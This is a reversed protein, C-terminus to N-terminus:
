ERFEPLRKLIDEPSLHWDARVDGPDPSALNNPDHLTRTYSGYLNALQMEIKSHNDPDDSHLWLTLEEQMVDYSLEVLNGSHGHFPPRGIYVIRPGVEAVREGLSFEKEKLVGLHKELYVLALGDTQFEGFSQLTKATEDGRDAKIQIIDTAADIYQDYILAQRIVDTLIEELDEGAQLRKNIGVGIPLKLARDELSKRYDSRSSYDM